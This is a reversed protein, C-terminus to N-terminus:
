RCLVRETCRGERRPKLQPVMGAWDDSLVGEKLDIIGPWAGMRVRCPRIVSAKLEAALGVREIAHAIHLLNTAAERFMNELHGDQEIPCDERFKM